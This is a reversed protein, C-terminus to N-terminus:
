AEIEKTTSIQHKEWFLQNNHPAEEKSIVHLGAIRVVAKAKQCTHRYGEQYEEWIDREKEGYCSLVSLKVKNTHFTKEFCIRYSLSSNPLETYAVEEWKEEQEDWVQIVIERPYAERTRERQEPVYLMGEIAITKQLTLILEVPFCEQEIVTVLNPNAQVLAKENIVCSRNEYTMKKTLQEMRLAEFFNREIDEAEVREQPAFAKSSAYHILAQKWAYAAPRKEFDGSLDASVVLLRGKEVQAEFLLALPLNRNWDDIVRVIPHLKALSGQMHFGRAHALIDEWQWGGDPETPFEEFVSCSKDIIMGLSRGWSPGMQGNWFVNKISLPPCEYSLDSLYPAFIVNKGQQLAEKALNWNQTYVVKQKETKEREEGYVYIQWTNQTVGELMLQFTFMQHGNESVYRRIFEKNPEVVGLCNKEGLPIKDVKIEGQEIIIPNEAHTIMKWKIVRNDYEEKGFHCVSVPIRIQQRTTYVYSSFSALLVTEGCFSRFEEPRAYGKQQWFADLLGVLATGQGLYDHLDLLEFGYLGNTRLNAEVDEKYLRLQNRGSAYAFEKNQSLLGHARCNEQFVEYNGPKLYGTFRKIVSFDPYACWQGLEHCIVPIDTKDLSPEYNGGKWGVPGRINGGLYPGYASRHFYLYDVGKVKSPEVEYFWGSQATYLRRHAGWLRNDYERTEKVWERLVQYWDGSPENTPSFLVFSPHHGFQSLIRRTEIRLVELMPIGEEFHNWMGCEPQIYVGEEDAAEFAADPPCYSHCRIFNLGWAKIIRMKDIWWAKDTVPYGTLPYEGGFHTGRFYEPRDDVYFKGHNVEIKRPHAKAYAQRDQQRKEWESETFLAIEGAMGHWTAGLADSVGHGDPRYPYQMTNDIEVLLTHVGKSLKGCFLKHATCLSCDEGTQVGDVYVTTKWHTLEIYLYWKEDIDQPITIKKEYIAKGLFHKPPQSLFPVKIGKEQAYQYEERKWWDKDHLGSIWPTEHSIDNGYGQAQLIGPLLITGEQMGSDTNLKVHWTGALNLYM